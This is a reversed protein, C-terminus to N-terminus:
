SLFSTKLCTENSSKPENPAQSNVCLLFIVELLQIYFLYEMWESTRWPHQLYKSDKSPNQESCHIPPMQLYSVAEQVHPLVEAGVMTQGAYMLEIVHQLVFSSFEGCPVIKYFPCVVIINNIQNDM